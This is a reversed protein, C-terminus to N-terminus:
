LLQIQWLGNERDYWFESLADEDFVRRMADFDPVWDYSEYDGEPMWFVRGEASSRLSGSFRSARYLFVIYRSGDDRFFEKIGRLSPASITLGTEERIERIVSATVSEGPEVHGGPYTMGSWGPSVKEQVLVNGQGDLIQCMNTLEVRETRDM